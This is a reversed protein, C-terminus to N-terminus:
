FPLEDFFHDARYAMVGDLTVEFGYSGRHLVHPARWRTALNAGDAKGAYAVSAGEYIKVRFDCPAGDSRSHFTFVFGDAVADVTDVYAWRKEFIGPEAHVYIKKAWKAADKPGLLHLLYNREAPSRCLVASLHGDLPLPSRALVEACRARVISNKNQDSLPFSHYVSEFDIGKFFLLDNGYSTQPSQMNGDSFGTEPRALVREASFVLMVLVPAHAGHYYENQRRIGEIHFQTPTRPRFYLRSFNHAVANSNVIDPAAINNFGVRLGDTRSLLVGSSLVRVANGIDEHRFLFKPWFQRYPARSQALKQQWAEIHAQAELSSIPM